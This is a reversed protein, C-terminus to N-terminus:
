GSESNSCKAILPNKYLKGADTRPLRPEFVVDRPLKHRALHDRAWSMPEASVAGGARAHDTLEVVAMVRQGLDDDPVGFVAVDAVLPHGILVNEIEQPYVNVGGSIIMNHRRDTLLLNGEDDLYGIDGFTVWGQM